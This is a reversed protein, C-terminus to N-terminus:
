FRDHNLSRQSSHTEQISSAQSSSQGDDDEKDTIVVIRGNVFHYSHPLNANTPSPVSHFMKENSTPSEQTSQRSGAAPSTHITNGTASMYVTPHYDNPEATPWAHYGFEGYQQTVADLKLKKKKEQSSTDSQSSQTTPTSKSDATYVPPASKGSPQSTVWHVTAVNVMVDVFCCTLCIVGREIGNLITLACLNAFSVILCVVSAVMTRKAVERLRSEKWASNTGSEVKMLPRVFLITMYLNIVFDYVLLPISAVPKLGITCLGDAEIWANHFIIMLIFIGVYPTLLIIHYRYSKTNWRSTRGANVVWVKEILWLYITIKTGAYFVDCSFESLLCSMYNGNNTSVLILGCATFAWSCMYLIIVLWKSYSLYKYQVNYTKIGFLFCMGSASLLGIIQSAIEGSDPQSTYTFESSGSYILGSM